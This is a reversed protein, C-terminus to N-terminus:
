MIDRCEQFLGGLLLSTTEYTTASCAQFPGPANPKFTWAFIGSDHLATVLRTRVATHLKTSTSGSSALCYGFQLAFLTLAVRRPDEFTAIDEDQLKITQRWAAKVQSDANEFIGLISAEIIECDAAQIEFVYKNVTRQLAIIHRKRLSITRDQALSELVARQHGSASSGDVSWFQTSQPGNWATVSPETRSTEDPSMEAGLVNKSIKFTSIINSQIDDLTLDSQFSIFCQQVEKLLACTRDPKLQSHSQAAYEIEILKILKEVHVLSLWLLVSDSLYYRPYMRSVYDSEGPTTNYPRFTELGEKEVWLNAMYQTRILYWLWPGLKLNLLELVFAWKEKWVSLYLYLKLFHFGGEVARSTYSGKSELDVNVGGVSYSSEWRGASELIRFVWNLHGECTTRIRDTILSKWEEECQVADFYGLCQILFRFQFSM